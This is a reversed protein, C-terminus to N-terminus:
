GAGGWIPGEHGVREEGRWGAVSERGGAVFGDDFALGVAPGAIGFEGCSSSGCSGGRASGADSRHGSPQPPGPRTWAWLSRCAQNALRLPVLERHQRVVPELRLDGARWSVFQPTVSMRSFPRSAPLDIAAGVWQGISHGARHEQGPLKGHRATSATAESPRAVAFSGNSPTPLGPPRSM